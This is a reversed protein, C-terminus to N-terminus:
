MEVTKPKEAIVQLRCSINPLSDAPGERTGEAAAQLNSPLRMTCSLQRVIESYKKLINKECPSMQRSCIM